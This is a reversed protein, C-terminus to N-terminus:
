AIIINGIQHHRGVLMRARKINRGNKGIALSRDSKKVEVVVVNDSKKRKLSIAKIKAPHLVNKVFEVLDDSYELVEVRKGLAKRVKQIQTGKKGIALGMDGKKVVFIIKNDEEDLICDKTVAGTLSEFLAIYNIENAGLKVIV